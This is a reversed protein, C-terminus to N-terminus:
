SKKPLSKKVSKWTHFGTAGRVAARLDQADSLAEKAGHFVTLISVQAGIKYVVRYDGILIERIEERGVEPVVRGSKPFRQLRSVKRHILRAWQLAAEKKDRSIFDVIRNLDLAAKPSWIIKM